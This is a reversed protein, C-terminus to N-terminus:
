PTEVTDERIETGLAAAFADAFRYAGERCSFLFFYRAPLVITRGDALSLGVRWSDAGEKAPCRVLRVAAADGPACLERAGYIVRGGREVIVPVSSEWTIRVARYLLWAAVILFPASALIASGYGRVILPIWLAGLAALGGGLGLHLVLEGVIAVRSPWFRWGNDPDRTVTWVKLKDFV